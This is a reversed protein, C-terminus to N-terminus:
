ARGGSPPQRRKEKWSNSVCVECSEGRSSDSVPQSPGEPVSSTRKCRKKMVVKMVAVPRKKSVRDEALPTQVCPPTSRGWVSNLWVCHVSGRLFEEEWEPALCGLECLTHELLCENREGPRSPDKWAEQNRSDVNRLVEM